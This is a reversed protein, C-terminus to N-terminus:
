RINALTKGNYATPHLISALINVLAPNQIFRNVNDTLTALGPTLTTLAQMVQTPDM